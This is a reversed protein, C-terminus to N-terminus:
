LWGKRKFYLMPIAASVIMLGIAMPYGWQWELEPMHAFNMGYVSAVLTPPFLAMSVVSVIKIIENQEANIRGLTTDLLLQVKGSLFRAYEDLGTADLFAGRAWRRVEKGIFGDGGGRAVFDLMRALSGLSEHAKAVLHGSQGIRKLTRYDDRVGDGAPEKPVPRGPRGFATTGMGDLETAARRLVGATREILAEVLGMLVTDAAAGAMGRRAIRRRFALMPQPDIHHITALRGGGLVFSIPTLRPTDTDAWVLAMVTMRLAGPQARLRSSEEIEAMQERTPLPVGMLAEARAVDQPTPNLLDIWVTNGPLPGADTEAGKAWALRGEERVFVHLM